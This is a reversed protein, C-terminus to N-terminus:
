SSGLMFIARLVLVGKTVLAQPEAFLCIEVIALVAVVDGGRRVVVLDVAEDISVGPVLAAHRSM